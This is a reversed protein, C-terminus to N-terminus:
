NVRYSYCITSLGYGNLEDLVSKKIEKLKASVLSFDVGKPIELTLRIELKKTLQNIGDNTVSVSFQKEFLSYDGSETIFKVIQTEM